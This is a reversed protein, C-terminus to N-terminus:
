RTQRQGPGADASPQGPGGDEPREGREAGPVRPVGAAGFEERVADLIADATDSPGSAPRGRAALRDMLAAAHRRQEALREPTDPWTPAVRGAAYDAAVEGVRWSAPSRGDIGPVGAPSSLSTRYADVPIRVSRGVRTARLRGGTVWRRVTRLSVGLELAVEAATRYPRDNMADHHWSM